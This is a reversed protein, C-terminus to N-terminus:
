LIHNRFRSWFNESPWTFWATRAPSVPLQLAERLVFQKISQASYISVQSPWRPGTEPWWCWDTSTSATTPPPTRCPPATSTCCVRPRARLRLSLAWVSVARSDSVCGRWRLAGAWWRLSTVASASRQGRPWPCLALLRSWCPEPQLCLSVTWSTTPGTRVSRETWDTNLCRTIGPWYKEYGEDQHHLKQNMLLVVSIFTFMFFKVLNFYCLFMHSQVPCWRKYM